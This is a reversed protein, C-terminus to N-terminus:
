APRDAPADLLSRAEPLSWPALERGLVRGFHRRVLARLQSAEVPQPLLEALSAVSGPPLGCPSILHFPAPLGAYNLAVGHTTVGRSLHLGLSAVKRQDVWVGPHGPERRAMLGLEAVAALFVEELLAVFEALGLGMEGLHFIPYAVLQGPGHCTALGGREVQHVEIGRRRLEGPPCLLDAQRGRRGLTIVPPHELLMLVDLCAGRRRAQALGRMLELAERYPCLDMELLLIQSM